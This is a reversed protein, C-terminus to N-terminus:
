FYRTLLNTKKFIRDIGFGTKRILPYFLITILVNYLVEIALIRIFYLWEFSYRQIAGILVYRGLEYLVTCGIVMLILTIKGEKSFNKDFYAGLFGILALMVATIGIQSSYVGDIILGFIVGFSVGFVTNTFLGIFLVFILILNPEIGAIPFIPCINSQMFLLLLFVVIFIVAIALKRM